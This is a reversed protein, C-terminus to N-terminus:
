LYKGYNQKIKLSLVVVSVQHIFNDYSTNMLLTPFKNYYDYTLRPFGTFAIRIFNELFYYWLLLMRYCDCCSYWFWKGIKRKAFILFNNHNNKKLGLAKNKYLLFFNTNLFAGELYKSAFFM